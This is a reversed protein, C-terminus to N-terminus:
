RTPDFLNAMVDKIQQEDLMSNAGFRPVKSCPVMATPNYIKTYVGKRAAANNHRVVQEGMLRRDDALIADIATGNKSTM